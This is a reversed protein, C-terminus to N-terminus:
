ELLKLLKKKNEQHHFCLPKCDEIAAKKVALKSAFALCTTEGCLKCNEQPLLKYITLIDPRKREQYDPQIEQKRRYTDNILEKLWELFEEISAANEFGTGKIEQAYITVLKEEKRFTLTEGERNYIAGEMVSNLYPLLDEVNLPLQVSFDLVEPRHRSIEGEPFKPLIEKNKEM